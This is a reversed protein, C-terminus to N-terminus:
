ISAPLAMLQTFEDFELMLNMNQVAQGAAGKVLNDIVSFLIYRGRGSCPAQEVSLVGRNSARAMATAPYRGRPLVTVLPHGAYEERLMGDLEDLPADSQFYVSAEMGRSMPALHPCFVFAQALEPDFRGLIQRIEPLHRHGGAGYPSLSDAAECYSNRLSAKRGSGSVGSKCDAILYASSVAGRKLLPLLGLSVCTPYCGPNAVLRSTPIRERNLEPLGYVAKKLLEPAAHKMRYWREWEAADLLRFDASLDVVRVNADLLGRAAQMCVGAPTAFFVVDMDKLSEDDPSAFRMEGVAGALAPLVECVPKGADAASTLVKVDVRPHLWLLRVLEQGSYGTAGVVGVNFVRDAKRVSENPKMEGNVGEDGGAQGRDSDGQRRRWDTPRTSRLIGSASGILAGRPKRQPM